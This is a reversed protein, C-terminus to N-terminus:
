VPESCMRCAQSENLLLPSCEIGTERAVGRVGEAQIQSIFVAPDHPGIIRYRIPMVVHAFFYRYPITLGSITLFKQFLSPAPIITRATM